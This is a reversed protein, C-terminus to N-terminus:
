VALLKEFDKIDVVKIRPFSITKLVDFHGDNTVLCHVNNAFACGAFKNDDEDQQILNMRFSISAQHVNQLETLTRVVAKAVEPHWRRAIVEEYEMLIENTIYLDFEGAILAQYLWHYKSKQSITVLLVNTDIVARPRIKKM